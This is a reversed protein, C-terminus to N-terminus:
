SDLAGKLRTWVTTLESPHVRTEATSTMFNADGSWRPVVHVHLHQPIGAGAAQGINIGINFGHPNFCTKLASQVLSVQQFLELMEDPSLEELSVVERYPIVM